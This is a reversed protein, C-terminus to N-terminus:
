SAGKPPPERSVIMVWSIGTRTRPGSVTAPSWSGWHRSGSTCMMSGGKICSLLMLSRKVFSAKTPLPLALPPLAADRVRSSILAFICPQRRMLMDVSAILMADTHVSRFLGSSSGPCTAPPSIPIASCGLVRIFCSPLASPLLSSPHALTLISPRSQPLTMLTPLNPPRTM